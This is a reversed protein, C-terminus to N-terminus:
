RQGLLRDYDAHTGIWVWEVSGDSLKWAIARYHDGVRVSFRHGGGALRKFNLSPHQPNELWLRYNKEALAQVEEPLDHLLHWFRPSATSKM